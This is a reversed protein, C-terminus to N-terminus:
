AAGQPLIAGILQQGIVGRQLRHSEDGLFAKLPPQEGFVFGVDLLQKARGIGPWVGLIGKV